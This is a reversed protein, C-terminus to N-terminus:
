GMGRKTFFARPIPSHLLVHGEAAAPLGSLLGDQAAALPRSLLGDQTAAPPGSLLGDQPQRVGPIPLLSM